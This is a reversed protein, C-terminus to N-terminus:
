QVITEIKVKASGDRVFNLQKAAKLTLDITHKSSKSLRDNVRVIVTSDNLLNTVRVFTGLKLTKHAATLEDQNFVEGFSTRRGNFRSAYYSARGKEVFPEETVFSYSIALLVTIVLFKM